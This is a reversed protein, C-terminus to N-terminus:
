EDAEMRTGCYPCYPTEIDATRECVSCKYVPRRSFSRPAYYPEWKGIKQEASEKLAEIAMYLAEKELEFVNSECIVDQIHKVAEERTM